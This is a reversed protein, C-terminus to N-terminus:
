ETVLQEFQLPESSHRNLWRCVTHALLKRNLRSTLHWIDRAWVKEISFREVLQGIITEVLRRTRVLLKVVAPSRTDQMNSRLATELEINKTRLEQQLTACLYGKDGIVLGQIPHVIDWLAERESGNAPTLSFGTIVGTVSVLLHGHFGYYTEKKAACYGYTAEGQFSRCRSARSFCCLPIPIGDILHVPATFAELQNALRQQLLEKYQWLNAAQRVFASRSNLGPFLMLWHRRFYKWIAQDADIGQYEAVIEMAIVESDALAPTFGKLRIPQGYTIEKLLDDVCCFVAIIFEEISFM